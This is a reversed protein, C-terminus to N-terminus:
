KGLLLHLVVHFDLMVGEQVSKLPLGPEMEQRMLPWSLGGWGWGAPNFEESPFADAPFVLAAAPPAERARHCPTERGTTLELSDPGRGMNQWKALPIAPKAYRLPSADLLM